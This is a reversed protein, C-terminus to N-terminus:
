LGRETCPCLRLSKGTREAIRAQQLKELIDGIYLLNPEVYQPAVRAATFDMLGRASLSADVHCDDIFQDVYEEWSKGRPKNFENKSGRKKHSLYEAIKHLTLTGPKSDLISTCYSASYSFKKYYPTDPKQAKDLFSYLQYGPSAAREPNLAEIRDYFRARARLYDEAMENTLQDPLEIWLNFGGYQSEWESGDMVLRLKQKVEPDIKM